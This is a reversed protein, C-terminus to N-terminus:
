YGCLHLVCSETTMSHISGVIQPIYRLKTGYDLLRDLYVFPFAQQNDLALVNLYHKLIINNYFEDYWQM